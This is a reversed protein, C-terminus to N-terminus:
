PIVMPMNKDYFTKERNGVLIPVKFNKQLLMGNLLKQGFFVWGAVIREPAQL